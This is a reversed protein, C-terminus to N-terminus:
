AKSSLVDPTNVKALAALPLTRNLRKGTAGRKFEVRALWCAEAASRASSAKQKNDSQYVVHVYGIQGTLDPRSPVKRRVEVWDGAIIEVPKPISSKIRRSWRRSTTRKPHPQYSCGARWDQGRLIKVLRTMLSHRVAEALEIPPHEWDIEEVVLLDAPDVYICKSGRLYPLDGRDAYKRLIHDPVQTIRMVRHLTWGRAKYTHVGLDYLRRHVANPSRELAEALEKRSLIGAGETLFWDEEPTWTEWARDTKIGVAAWAERFSSFYKLVGYSSPYPNGVGTNSKGTFQQHEQYALISTPAIGFDRHFRRLGDLVRQRTWWQERYKTHRM